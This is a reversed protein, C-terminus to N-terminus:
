SNKSGRSRALRSAMPWRHRGVDDWSGVVTAGKLQEGARQVPEGRPHQENMANPELQQGVQGSGTEHAQLCLTIPPSRGVSTVRTRIVSAPRWAIAHHAAHQRAGAQRGPGSHSCSDLV